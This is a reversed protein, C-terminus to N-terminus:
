VGSRVSCAWAATCSRVPRGRVRPTWPRSKRMWPRLGRSWTWSSRNSICRVSKLIPTLGVNTRIASFFAHNGELSPLAVPVTATAGGPGDTVLLEVTRGKSRLGEHVIDLTPTSRCWRVTRVQQQQEATESADSSSSSAVLLETTLVAADAAGIERAVQLLPAHIPHTPYLKIRFPTSGSGTSSADVEPSQSSHAFSRRLTSLVTPPLHLYAPLQTELDYQVAAAAASADATMPLATLRRPAAATVPPPATTSLMRVALASGVRRRAVLVLLSPSMSPMRSPRNKHLGFLSGEM